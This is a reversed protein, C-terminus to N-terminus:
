HLRTVQAVLLAAAVAISIIGVFYGWLAGKTVFNRDKDTMAARWENSANRWKEANTEAVNVAKEAAALAANIAKEAAVMAAVIAKEKAEALQRYREDREDMIAKLVDLTLGNTKMIKNDREATM